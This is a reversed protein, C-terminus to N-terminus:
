PQVNSVVAPLEPSLGTRVMFWLAKPLGRDGSPLRSQTRM